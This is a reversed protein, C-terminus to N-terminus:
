IKIINILVIANYLRFTIMFLLMRLMLTYQHLLLIYTFPIISCNKYKSAKIIDIFGGKKIYVYIYKTLLYSKILGNYFVLRYITYIIFM